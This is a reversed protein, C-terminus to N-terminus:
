GFYLVEGDYGALFVKIEAGHVLTAAFDATKGCVLRILPASNGSADLVERASNAREAFRALRSCRPSAGLWGALNKLDLASSSVHTQEHGCAIKLLKAFQGALIIRKVGKGSCARLAHGVHDGMMVYAEEPFILGEAPVPCQACPVLDSTDRSGPQAATGTRSFFRQAALESTRGTSLVVTECGCARAVDVATDITDTWAAASVPKVIGTTGLISLGGIIGLRANLTKEALKEGNPISIAVHPIFTDAQGSDPARCTAFVERVAATIMQRPVPNIAWEGMPIALGPKTVRGIGAGGEIIAQVDNGVKQFPPSPCTLTVTAHIEAGNTVDPDDGADKVVFCSASNRTFTQGHLPFRAYEGRPLVIEVDDVARQAQLMLAAGKAAAAACAGTTYGSKLKRKGM